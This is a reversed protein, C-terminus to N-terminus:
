LPSCTIKSLVRLTTLLHRFSQGSSCGLSHTKLSSWRNSLTTLFTKKGLSAYLICFTAPQFLYQGLLISMYQPVIHVLNTQRCFHSILVEHDMNKVIQGNLLINNKISHLTTQHKWISNRLRWSTMLLSPLDSLTLLQGTIIWYVYPIVYLAKHVVGNVPATPIGEPAITAIFRNTRISM